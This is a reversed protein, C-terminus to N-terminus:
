WFASKNLNGERLLTTWLVSPITAQECGSAAFHPRSTSRAPPLAATHKQHEEKVGFGFVFLSANRVVECSAATATPLDLLLCTFLHVRSVFPMCGGTEVHRLRAGRADSAVHEDEEPVCGGFLYLSHVAGTASAGFCSEVRDFLREADWLVLVIGLDGQGAGLCDSDRAGCRSPDIGNLSKATAFDVHLTNKRRGNLKTLLPKGHRFDSSM